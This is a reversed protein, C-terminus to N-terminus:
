SYKSRAYDSCELIAPTTPNRHEVWGVFTLGVKFECYAWGDAPKVNKTWRLYQLNM